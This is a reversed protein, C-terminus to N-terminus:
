GIGMLIAENWAHFEWFEKSGKKDAKKLRDRFTKHIKRARTHYRKSGEMRFEDNGYEAMLEFWEERFEKYTLLSELYASLSSNFLACDTKKESLQPYVWWIGGRVGDLCVFRNLYFSGGEGYDNPVEGLVVFKMLDGWKDLQAHGTKPYHKSKELGANIPLRLRTPQHKINVTEFRLQLVLAERPGTPLGIEKLLKADEERLPCADVLKAPAVKFHEEGWRKKIAEPTM